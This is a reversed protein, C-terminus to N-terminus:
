RDDSCECYPPSTVFSSGEVRYGSPSVLTAGGASPEDVVTVPVLAARSTPTHMSWRRVTEYVM